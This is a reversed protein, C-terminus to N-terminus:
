LRRKWWRFYTVLALVALVIVIIVPNQMVLSIIWSYMGVDTSISSKSSVIITPVPTATKEIETSKAFLAFCCLHSVQVTITGTEPNYSGPLAQWTGTANDYEQIVYGQEWQARPITFSVSMSPFFTAGYPQLDYAMGAFSFLAGSPLTPLNEAPTRTISISSLPNGSSDKAVVGLGISVTALGDTSTLTTAQTIVGQANVYIKATKGPDPAISTKNEPLITTQVVAPINNGGSTSGGATNQNVVQVIVFSIMQFPNNNGTFSSVGFTSLGHPSDAEYYELNNVLDRYVLNTPLIQGQTGNDAIRWIFVNGPGGSLLGNWNSNVSMHVKVPATSPFNTKTINATYATGIPVAGNPSSIQILKTNYETIVGEWIKTSFIANCPYSSLDMSYNFSANTGIDVSFSPSPAIDESVLRVGTPNGTILNGNRSFGVGNLAYITVTKFGRDAPQLVLVSNNPILAATLVSTDVTVTQPGRCNSITLGAISTNAERVAGNLVNIYNWQTKIDSGYANTATLSVTYTGVSYYTNVPDKLTSSNGDGFDWSWSTPSGLSTDTFRVTLPAMDSTPSASFNATVPTTKIVFNFDATGYNDMRFATLPITQEGVTYPIWANGGAGTFTVTVNEDVATAGGNSTLTLVGSDVIGTWTAAAATDSVVVNANSFSSNSVYPDLDAVYISISDYQLIPADRITIVMSTAGDTATIKSGPAITFGGPGPSTEIVFNFTATESTDTRNATLIASWVGGGTDVIWPSGAAGTFTVTVNEGATTNGGTSTLTLITGSVNGTWTANVATDTVVVNANMFTGNWVDGYLASVDITIIDNEAIDPGTITIVPSTNGTRSIIKAGDTANLGASVPAVLFVAVLIFLLALPVVRRNKM